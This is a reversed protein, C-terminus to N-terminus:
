YTIERWSKFDVGGEAEEGDGLQTINDVGAGGVSKDAPINSVGAYINGRNDIVPATVLGEGVNYETVGGCGDSIQIIQSSGTLPCSKSEPRYISFYVNKKFLGARGIVKTWDVSGSKPEPVLSSKSYTDSYWNQTVDTTCEEANINLSTLATKGIGTDTLTHGPFDSDKVGFIRNNISSIRRQIRSQDGTGFYNFISVDDGDDNQVVTTAVQNFGFRDNALTGKARFALNLEFLNTNDDDM